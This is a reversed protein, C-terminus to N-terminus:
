LVAKRKTAKRYEKPSFPQGGHQAAHHAEKCAPSCFKQWVVKPPYMTGCHLCAKPPIGPPPPPANNVTANNVCASSGEPQPRGFGTIVPRAANHPAHGNHHGNPEFLWHYPNAQAEKPAEEGNHSIRKPRLVEAADYLPHPQEPKPPPPTKAAQRAIWHRAYANWKESLLAVFEAWVTPAFHYTGPIATEEMEAGKAAVEQITIASLLVLLCIVSTLWALGTGYQQVQAAAEAKAANHEEEVKRRAAQREGEASDTAKSRAQQASEMAAAKSQELAALAEAQASRIGALRAKIEAKRTTYGRGEARERVELAALAQRAEAEQAAYKTRTAEVQPAFRAAIGISDANWQSFAQAKAAQATSDIPATNQAPPPQIVAAALDKSGRFSLTIHAVGLGLVVAFVFVSIVLHLGSLRRYIIARVAYPLFRRLGGEILLVGMVAGVIGAPFAFAPFVPAVKARILAFLIAFEVVGALAQALYGLLRLTSTLGAYHGFFEENKPLSFAIKM